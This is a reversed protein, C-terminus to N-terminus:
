RHTWGNMRRQAAFPVLETSFQHTVVWVSRVKAAKMPSKRPTGLASCVCASSTTCRYEGGEHARLCGPSACPPARLRRPSQHVVSILLCHQLGCVCPCVVRDAVCSHRVLVCRMWRCTSLSRVTDCRQSWPGPGVQNIALIRFQHRTGPRLGEVELGLGTIDPEFLVAHPPLVSRDTLTDVLQAAQSANADHVGSDKATASLSASSSAGAPQAGAGAGAGASAAAESATADGHM